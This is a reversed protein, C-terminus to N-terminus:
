VLLIFHGRFGFGLVLVGGVFILDVCQRLCIRFLICSGTLLVSVCEFLEECGLASVATVPSLVQM